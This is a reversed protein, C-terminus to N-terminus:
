SASASYLLIYSKRTNRACAHAFRVFGRVMIWGHWHAWIDATTEIRNHWGENLFARKLGRMEATNSEICILWTKAWKCNIRRSMFTFNWIPRFIQFIDSWHQLQRVETYWCMFITYISVRCVSYVHMFIDIFVMYVSYVCCLCCLCCVAYVSYVVISLM